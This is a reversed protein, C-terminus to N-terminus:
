SEHTSLSKESAALMHVELKTPVHVATLPSHLYCIFNTELSSEKGMKELQFNVAREDKLSFKFFDEIQEDKRKSRAVSCEAM